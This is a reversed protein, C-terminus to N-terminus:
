GSRAILEEMSFPKTIYDDAGIRLGLVRDVESDKATLMIIPINARDRILKCVEIGDIGPLMIDLIVLNYERKKFLKVAREGDPVTDLRYGERSLYKVLLERIESEDDAFLIRIDKM